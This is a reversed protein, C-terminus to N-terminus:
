SSDIKVGKTIEGFLTLTGPMVGDPTVPGREDTLASVYRGTLRLNHKDRNYNVFANIRWEPAAFGVSSFNLQGLRDRGANVVVGDLIEDETELELVRTGTTSFTVDAAGVPVNYTLSFDVGSTLQGAGNGVDTM